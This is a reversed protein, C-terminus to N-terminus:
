AAATSWDWAVPLVAELTNGPVGGTDITRHPEDAGLPEREAHQQLYTDWRADSPGGQRADLRRRIVEPAADCELFLLPRGHLAATTALLDRDARRIFTADAVVGEGAGLAVGVEECLRAYVAARAAPTYREVGYPAPGTGPTARRRLLDTSVHVFGTADALAAALTTKGSGSLGGCAIVFPARSRWAHRLALTFYRSALTGARARDKAEVESEAARLGEVAGRVCARYACYFPLLTRLEHDGSSAVYADVFTAMLDSRGLRELDMALFAVDSAVDACRLAHSFEVCDIVYIGPALPGHHQTPPLPLDVICVHEARLDGHGERIRRMEQRTALLSAHGDIFSPGFDALIRHIAPSLAGGVLPAALALVDAWIGHLAAPSAHAAVTPGSPAAAHFEALLAALRVLTGADATGDKVLRDLMREVPLRRMRVVHEVAPGSGDFALRGDHERTIPLVDLYVPAALRRNLRCEDECLARRREAARADLFPFHVPKKLKYVYPGALFVHSIHTQLHEVSAPHDPHFAPDALARVVESQPDITAAERDKGSDATM